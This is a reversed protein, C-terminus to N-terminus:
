HSQRLCQADWKCASHSCFVVFAELVCLESGGVIVILELVQLEVRGAAADARASSRSCCVPDAWLACASLGAMQRCCWRRCDCIRIVGRGQIALM